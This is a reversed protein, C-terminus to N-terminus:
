YLLRELLKRYFPTRGRYRVCRDCRGCAAVEAVHDPFVYAVISQKRCSGSLVWRRFRDLALLQETEDEGLRSRHLQYDERTYLITGEVPPLPKTEEAPVPEYVRRFTETCVDEVGAPPQWFIVKMAEAAPPIFPQTDYGNSVVITNPTTQFTREVNLLEEPTMRTTHLLVDELGYHVLSKALKEAIRVSSTKILVSGPMLISGMHGKKSVPGTLLRILRRFKQHETMLMCVTVMVPEFRPIREFTRYQALGLRGALEERRDPPLNHSLLVLRPKERFRELGNWLKGYRYAGASDPLLLHAQEILLFAVSAHVMLDLFNLTDFEEPTVYLLRVNNKNVEAHVNRVEHPMQTGDLVAVEPFRYETNGFYSLNRRVAHRDPCVVVVLHKGMLASFAYLPVLPEDAPFSGFINRDRFVAEIFSKQITEQPPAQKFFDSMVCM